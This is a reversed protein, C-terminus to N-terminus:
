GEMCSFPFFAVSICYFGPASRARGASGLRIACQTQLFPCMKVNNRPLAAKSCPENEKFGLATLVSAGASMPHGDPACGLCGLAAAPWHADM